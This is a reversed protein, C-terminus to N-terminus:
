DRLSSQAKELRVARGTRASDRAAELIRTVM